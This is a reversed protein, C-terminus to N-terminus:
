SNGESGYGIQISRGVANEAYGRDEESQGSGERILRTLNNVEAMIGDRVDRIQGKTEGLEKLMDDFESRLRTFSEHSATVGSSNSVRGPGASRAGVRARGLPRGRTSTSWGRARPPDARERPYQQRFDLESQIEGAPSRPQNMLPFLNERRAVGRRSNVEVGRHPWGTDRDRQPDEGTAPDQAMFHSFHNEAEPLEEDLESRSPSLRSHSSTRMLGERERQAEGLVSAAARLTEREATLTMLSVHGGESREEDGPHLGLGEASSGRSIPFNPSDEDRSIRRSRPRTIIPGRSEYQDTM